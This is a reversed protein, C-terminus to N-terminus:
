FMGSVDKLRMAVECIAAFEVGEGPDIDFVVRDSWAGTVNHRSNNVRAAEASSLALLCSALRWACKNRL